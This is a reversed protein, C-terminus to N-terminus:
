SLVKYGAYDRDVRRTVTWPLDPTERQCDFWADPDLPVPRM